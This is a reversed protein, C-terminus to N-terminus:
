ASACDIGAAALLAALQKRADFMRTKITSEPVGVIEAADDSSREHYYALDIIERHEPSLAGLCKRFIASRDKVQLAVDPKNGVDQILSATEEDLEEEGGKNVSSLAKSRAMALLWSSVSSRAEFKAAERWVDLFVDSIIDEAETENRVLRLVYRYVRVHHRAFLVQLTLKDGAAIRAVLGEDTTRRAASTPPGLGASASWAHEDIM